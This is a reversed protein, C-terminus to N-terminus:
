VQGNSADKLRRYWKEATRINCKVEAAVQDITADPNRALVYAVAQEKSAFRSPAISQATEDQECISELNALGNQADAPAEIQLSTNAQEVQPISTITVREMTREIVTEITTQQIKAFEQLMERWDPAVPAPVAPPDPSVEAPTRAEATATDDERLWGSMFILVAVLASREYILATPNISLRAEAQGITLSTGLMNAFISGMQLSVYGLAAAIALCLAMEGVKCWGSKHKSTYIRRARVGLMLVQFDLTLMLCIAWVLGAIVSAAPAYRALLSNTLIDVGAIIGSTALAPGSLTVIANELRTVSRSLTNTSM